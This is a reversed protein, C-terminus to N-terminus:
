RVKLALDLILVFTFIWKWMFGTSWDILLLLSICEFSGELPLVDTLELFGHCIQLWTM